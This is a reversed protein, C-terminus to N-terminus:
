RIERLAWRAEDLAAAVGPSTDLDPTSAEVARCLHDIATALARVQVQLSELLVHLETETPPAGAHGTVPHDTEPTM